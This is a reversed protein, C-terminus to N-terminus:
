AAPTAPTAPTAAVPPVPDPQKGVAASDGAVYTPAAPAKAAALQAQLDAVQATLKAVEDILGDRQAILPGVDFAAEVGAVFTKLAGKGQEVINGLDDKVATEGFVAQEAKTLQSM